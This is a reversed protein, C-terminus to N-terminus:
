IPVAFYLRPTGPSKALVVEAELNGEVAGDEDPDEGPTTDESRPQMPPVHSPDPGPVAPTDLMGHTDFAIRAAM